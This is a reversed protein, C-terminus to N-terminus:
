EKAPQAVSYNAEIEANSLENADIAPKSAKLDAVVKAVEKKVQEAVFKATAKKVQEAVLNEINKEDNVNKVDIDKAKNDVM